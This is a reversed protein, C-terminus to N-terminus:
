NNKVHAGHFGLSVPRGVEARGLEELSRADLCILYSSGTVGNFVVSMIVGDDEEEGGPRPIFVPESPTHKECQWTICSKTGVDTKGIADWLTSHGRDLLSWVFRHPKGVYDPNFRPMDGANPCPIRMIRHAETTTTSSKGKLPIGALKYRSLGLDFRGPESWKKANKSNSLLNEYYFKHVIDTDPFDVLEVTVDVEGDKEHGPVEFANTTHFCFFAPSTFKKLLGRKGKRDVVLWIAKANKDWPAIADIINKEWLIGLGKAKYFAPWICLIIFNETMSISHIYAAKIDRGSVEALIDFNRTKPNARFIRYIAKPGLELNYNYIDGTELDTEPHAGSLQGVLRPHLHSQSAVGLPELTEMDFAKTDSNDTTLSMMRRQAVSEGSQKTVQDREAPLTEQFAVGINATSKGGSSADAPAFMTKVKKYLSDCPDRKQGFCIDNLKGTKRASEILEDVQYRSSYKIERCKGDDGAVLDFKHLITFGDFWHDIKFDGDKADSRPVEYAGPGTRLLSGAVWSPFYGDIALSVPERTESLHNFSAANPWDNYHDDTSTELTKMASGGVPMPLSCQRDAEPQKM